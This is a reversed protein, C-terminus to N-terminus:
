ILRQVIEEPLASAEMHTSLTFNVHEKEAIDVLRDLLAILDKHGEQNCTLSVFGDVYIHAIDSNQSLVGLIFGAFESYNNFTSNEAEVFRIDRHLDHIHRQDDDIFVIIGDTLTVSENAMSILKSTKGGGKPSALFRVM